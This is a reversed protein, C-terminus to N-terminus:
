GDAPLAGLPLRPDRRQRHRDDRAATGANRHHRHRRIASQPSGAVCRVARLAGDSHIPGLPGTQARNAPSAFAFVQAIGHADADNTRLWEVQMRVVEEPALDPSPETAEVPPTAALVTTTLVLLWATMTINLTHM